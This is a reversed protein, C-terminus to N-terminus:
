YSRFPSEQSAYYGSPSQIIFGRSALPSNRSIEVKLRRFGGDRKKNSSVYGLLYQRRVQQIASELNRILDSDGSYPLFRGGTAKAMKGLLLPGRFLRSTLGVGIGLLTAESQKLEKFAREPDGRNGKGDSVLLIVKRRESKLANLKRSALYVSDSINTAGSFSRRAQELALFLKGKNMTFEQVLWPSNSFVIVAAEDEENLLDALIKTTRELEQFFPMVSESVDLLVVLSLPLSQYDLHSIQQSVEDEYLQLDEIKLNDVYRRNKDQVAFNLIVLDVDVRIPESSFFSSSGSQASAGSVLSVLLLIALFASASSADRIKTWRM